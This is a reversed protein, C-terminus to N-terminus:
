SNNDKLNVNNGTNGKGQGRIAKSCIWGDGNADHPSGPSVMLTWKSGTPCAGALVVQIVQSQTQTRSYGWSGSGPAWEEETLVTLDYLGAPTGLPIGISHVFNHQRPTSSFNCGASADPIDVGPVYDFTEQAIPSSSSGITVISRYAGCVHTETWTIDIPVTSGPTVTTVTTPSNITLSEVTATAPSALMFSALLSAVGALAALRKFSM